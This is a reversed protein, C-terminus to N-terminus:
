SLDVRVFRRERGAQPATEVATAGPSEPGHVAQDDIWIAVLQGRAGCARPIYEPSVLIATLHHPDLPIGQVMKGISQISRKVM